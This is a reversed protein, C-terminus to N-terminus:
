KKRVTRTTTTTGGGKVFRSSPDSFNSGVDLHAHNGASSPNSPNHCVFYCKGAAVDILKGNTANPKIVTTDFNLLYTFASAISGGGSAPSGDYGHPDHCSACSIYQMFHGGSINTHVTSVASSSHCNFCLGWHSTMSSSWGTGLNPFRTTDYTSKLIAINNSGHPGAPSGVGDSAHCDSCYIKSSSTYPPLLSTVSPNKGIDEVPHYSVNSTSFDLRDNGVGRYRKIYKPISQVDSHCRFCIQYEYTVSSTASGGADIGQVGAVFGNVNPATTPSNKVAHPNHCDVCEVHQSGSGVLATEAEDHVGTSAYVNHSYTKTLQNQINTSATNGNHCSLCNNEEQAYYMLRATGGANHTAHCNECANDAMSTFPTNLWPSIGSGNWNKLSNKHSSSGWYAKNHCSYCLASGRNTAVLFNGNTNDHADHCSTCQLEGKADLSVPATISAPTVLQGNAAALSNDYTFSIPHDDSLNTGLNTKGAPLTSTAGFSIPTPRSTVSGLAVTGDHCSLCMLSTGTPKSPAGFSYLMTSSNYMTYTSGPDNRNWLPSNNLARANHPTHCFVCVESEATSKYTGTGSISLNHKTGAIDQACVFDTSLLVINAFIFFLIIKM